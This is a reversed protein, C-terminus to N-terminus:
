NRMWVEREGVKLNIKIYIWFLLLIYGRKKQVEYLWSNKVIKCEVKVKKKVIKM